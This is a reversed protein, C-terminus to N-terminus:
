RNLCNAINFFFFFFFLVWRPILCWVCLKAFSSKITEQFRCALPLKDVSCFSEM